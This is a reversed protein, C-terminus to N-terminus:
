EDDNKTAFRVSKPPQAAAVMHPAHPVHRKEEKRPAHSEHKSSSSSSNSHKSSSDSHSHHSHDSGHHSHHSHHHRYHEEEVKSSDATKETLNRNFRERLRQPFQPNPKDGCTTCEEKPSEEPQDARVEKRPPEEKAKVTQIPNSYTSGSESSQTSSDPGERSGGHGKNRFYKVLFVIILIVIIVVVVIGVITWTDMQGAGLYNKWSSETQSM